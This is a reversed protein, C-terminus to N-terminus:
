RRVGKSNYLKVAILLGLTPSYVRGSMYGRLINTNIIKEKKYVEYAELLSLKWAKGTNQRVFYLIDDEVRANIYAAKGTVSKYSKVKKALSLFSKFSLM